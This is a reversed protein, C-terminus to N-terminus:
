AGYYFPSRVADIRPQGHEMSMNATAQLQAQANATAGNASAADEAQVKAEAAQIDQPYNADDGRGPQYGAQELRILDARVEARSLPAQASQAFSLAPAALACSILVTRILAKM